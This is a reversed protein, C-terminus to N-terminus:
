ETEKNSVMANTILEDDIYLRFKNEPQLVIKIPASVKMRLWFCLGMRKGNKEKLLKPDFPFSQSFIGNKGTSYCRFVIKDTNKPIYVESKGKRDLELNVSIGSVSNHLAVEQITTKGDSINVVELNNISFLEQCLAANQIYQLTTRGMVFLVTLALTTLLAKKPFYTKSLISVFFLGILLFIFITLAPNIFESADPGNSGGNPTAHKVSVYLFSVMFAILATATLAVTWNTFRLLFWQIGGVIFLCLFLLISLEKIDQSM